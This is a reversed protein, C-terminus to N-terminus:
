MQQQEPTLEIENSEFDSDIEYDNAWRDKKEPQINQEILKILLTALSHHDL